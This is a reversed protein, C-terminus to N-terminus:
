QHKFFIKFLVKNFVKDLDAAREDSYWNQKYSFQFFLQM